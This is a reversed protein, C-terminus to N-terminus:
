RAVAASRQVHPIAEAYIADVLEAVAMLEDLRDPPPAALSRAWNAAARGGWADPPTVLPESHTGRHLDLRFDYFSGEVNALAATGESGHVVFRIEADRGAHSGWSCALRVATGKGAGFEALAFDECAGPALPAGKAWLQASRLSAQPFGLIHLALDVLHVGLDIVCGGGSLAPDYFWGKDPGYANHFVAEIALIRGLAGEAMLRRIAAAAATERYSFDVGLVRGARRAAAVAAAVEGVDRGLPKQCFVHAGAELAAITQAAHLASPTAIVVGDPKAALMADFSDMVVADPAAERAAALSGPDPDCLWAAEIAGTDIMAAMRHRGIWGTGLFGIRPRSM